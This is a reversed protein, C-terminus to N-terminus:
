QFGSRHSQLRAFDHDCWSGGLPDMMDSFMLTRGPDKVDQVRHPPWATMLLVRNMGIDWRLGMAGWKQFVGRRYYRMEQTIAPCAFIGVPVYVREDNGYDIQTQWPRPRQWYNGHAIYDADWREALHPYTYPLLVDQWMAENAWNKGSANIERKFRGRWDTCYSLQAVSLQHMNNACEVDRAASLARRLTPALLAMLIAIIAIVILMEILTFRRGPGKALPLTSRESAIRM